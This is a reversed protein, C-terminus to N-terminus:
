APSRRTRRDSRAPRGRGSAPRSVATVVHLTDAPNATRRCRCPETVVVVVGVVVWRSRPWWRAASSWSSGAPWRCRGPDGSGPPPSARGPGSPARPRRGRRTGPEPRAPGARQHLLGLCFAAPPLLGRGPNTFPRPITVISTTSIGARGAPPAGTPLEAHGNGTDIEALVLEAPVVAGVVVDVRGLLAQVLVDHAVDRVLLLSGSHIVFNRSFANFRKSRLGISSQNALFMGSMSKSSM